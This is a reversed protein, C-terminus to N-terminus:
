CYSHLNSRKILLLITVQLLAMDVTVCLPQIDEDAMFDVAVDGEKTEAVKIALDLAAGM